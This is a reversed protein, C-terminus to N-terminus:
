SISATPWPQALRDSLDSDSGFSVVQDPQLQVNVVEGARVPRTSLVPQVGWTDLYVQSVMEGRVVAVSQVTGRRLTAATGTAASIDAAAGGVHLARPGLAIESEGETIIRYGLFRATWTDIQAAWVQAPTGLQVIRGERMLAVEDAVTFAEDHDHTVYLATTGAARLITALEGALHERLHRDLASLPEDLLLLRPRPALSRALAVRQQQGGSLTDIRRPGYGALGVLELLESVRDAREAKPMGAMQLGFAINGAVNRHPFLQGEQFMLGFGREHM